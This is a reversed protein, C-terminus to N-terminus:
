NGKGRATRVTGGASGHRIVDLLLEVSEEMTLVLDHDAEAISAATIGRRETGFFTQEVVGTVCIRLDHAGTGSM